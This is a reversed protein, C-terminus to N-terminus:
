GQFTQNYNDQIEMYLKYSLDKKEPIIVDFEDEAWKKVLRVYALFESENLETTSETTVISGSKPLDEVKSNFKRKCIRHLRDTDYEGTSISIIQLVKWYYANQDISRIPKNREIKVIYDGKPLESLKKGLEQHSQADGTKYLFMKSM